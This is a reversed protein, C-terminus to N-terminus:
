EEDKFQRRAVSSTDMITAHIRRGNLLHDASCQLELFARSSTWESGGVRHQATHLHSMEVLEVVVPQSFGARGFSLKVSSLDVLIYSSWFWSFWFLWKSASIEWANNKAELTFYLGVFKYQFGPVPKKGTAVFNGDPLAAENKGEAQWCVIWNKNLIQSILVYTHVMIISYIWHWVRLLIPLM